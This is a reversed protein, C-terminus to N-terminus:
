APPRMFGISLLCANVSRNVVDDHRCYAQVTNSVALERIGGVFFGEDSSNSGMTPTEINTRSGNVFVSPIFRRAAGMTSFQVGLLIVYYGALPCTWADTGADFGGDTDEAATLTLLRFDGPVLAQTIDKTGTFVPGVTGGGTAKELARLRRQIDELMQFLADDPNGRVLGM